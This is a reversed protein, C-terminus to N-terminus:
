ARQLSISFSFSDLTIVGAHQTLRSSLGSFSGGSRTQTTTCHRSVFLVISGLNLVHYAIFRINPLDPFLEDIGYVDGDLYQSVRGSLAEFLQVNKTTDPSRHEIAIADTEHYQKPRDSEKADGTVQFYEGSIRQRSRYLAVAFLATVGVPWIVIM